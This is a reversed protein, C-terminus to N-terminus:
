LLGYVVNCMANEVCNGSVNVVVQVNSAAALSIYKQQGSYGIGWIVNVISIDSYAAELQARFEGSESLRKIKKYDSLTDAAKDEFILIVNSKFAIIDPIVIGKTKDSMGGGVHFKRGTGGGPFDYDLIEWGSDALWKLISKAVQEETM